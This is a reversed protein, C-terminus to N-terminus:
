GAKRVRVMRQDQVYKEQASRNSGRYLLLTEREMEVARKGKSYVM